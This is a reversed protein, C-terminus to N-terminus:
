EKYQICINKSKFKTPIYITIEDMSWTVQVTSNGLIGQGHKQEIKKKM